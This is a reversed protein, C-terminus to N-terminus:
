CLLLGVLFSNHPSRWGGACGGVENCVLFLDMGVSVRVPNRGGDIRAGSSFSFLLVRAALILRILRYEQESPAGPRARGAARTVCTKM